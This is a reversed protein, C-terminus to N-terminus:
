RKPYDLFSKPKGGFQKILKNVLSSDPHRWIETYWKDMKSFRSSLYEHFHLTLVRDNPIDKEQIGAFDIKETGEIWGSSTLHYEFWENSLSM